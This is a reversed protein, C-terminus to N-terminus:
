QRCWGPDDAEVNNGFVRDELGFSLGNVSAQSLKTSKPGDQFDCITITGRETDLFIFYGERGGNTNALTVVHSPLTTAEKMPDVDDASSFSKSKQSIEGM